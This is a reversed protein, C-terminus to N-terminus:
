AQRTPVARIGAAIPIILLGLFGGILTLTAYSSATVILGSSLGGGAGALAIGLDVVGQTRARTALPVADTVLTTGSVLGLNWGLGLLVLALVLIAVSDVPASAAILGAALLTLGAALAIPLYGFRDVLWGSFPSPLFMGAVHAAIVVGTVSISHGHHEIHIPTMTMIAVMILQTLIMIGAGGAVAWNLGRRSAAAANSVSPKQTDGARASEAAALSRALLLPDPRLLLWLVIGASAYAAAALLFPGVLAPMGLNTAVTGTAQVLNPGIIAGVATAVLVISVARGRRSPAALDAGAYRAQLNTSVGAGYILFSAFLLVINSLSAAVVISLSGLAGTLYGASLGARRGFRQSVRGVGVAAAASGITFFVTPLGSFRSSGLMQEALLAGVTIGAALGLGSLIQALLLVALTRRQERPEETISTSTRAAASGTV